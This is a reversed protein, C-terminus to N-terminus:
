LDVDDVRQFVVDGSFNDVALSLEEVITEEQLLPVDVDLIMSFVGTSNNKRTACDVVNADHTGLVETVRAVIGPTDSVALHFIYKAVKHEDEGPSLDDLENSFSLSLGSLIYNSSLMEELESMSRNEISVVLIM